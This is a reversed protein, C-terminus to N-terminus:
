RRTAGPMQYEANCLVLNTIGSKRVVGLVTSVSQYSCEGDAKFQVEVDPYNARQAALVQPLEQLTLKQNDFLVSNDAKLVIVKGKPANLMAGGNSVKPLNVEISGESESFRTGVMFFIILLFLVDIMSTLNITASEEQSVKLPM